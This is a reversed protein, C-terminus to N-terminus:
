VDSGESSTRLASAYWPGGAPWARTFPAREVISEAVPSLFARVLEGISDFRNRLEVALRSRRQFAEWLQVRAEDQFFAPRLAEPLERGLPSDRRRFTAEVASQLSEGDFDFRRAVADVDWFDRMRSNRGGRRVMAEFKEAIFTERPYTWIQPKPLDLMSPYEAVQRQPTIVDGFGVDVQLKIEAGSLTATVQARIGGYTEEERIRFVRLTELDFSLGDEPVPVGLIRRVAERVAEPDPSGWSLLDIDRTPRLPADSWILFLAGGKLTFRDVLDSLTLRHLFREGAYRQLVLNFDVRQAKSLNLLRQRVSAGV